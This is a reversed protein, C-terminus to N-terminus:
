CWRYDSQTTRHQANILILESSVMSEYVFFASESLELTSFGM